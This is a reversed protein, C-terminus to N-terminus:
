WDTVRQEDQNPLVTSALVNFRFSSNSPNDKVVAQVMYDADRISVIQGIALSDGFYKKAESETLAVSFPHNGFAEFSGYLLQSNFMELWARNVYAANGKVSFLTNNVTVGEFPAVHMFAIDEIEPIESECVKIFPFSSYEGIGISEGQFAIDNTIRYIRNSDPHFRNFSREHHVWLFILVSATVGIALGAINIASYTYNRRLSRLFIKIHYFM